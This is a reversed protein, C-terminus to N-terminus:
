IHFKKKIEIKLKPYGFLVGTLMVIASFTASTLSPWLTDYVKCWYLVIPIFGLICLMMIAPMNNKTKHAVALYIGEGIISFIFIFPLCYELSWYTTSKLVCQIVVLLLFIGVGQIIIKQSVSSRSFITNQVLLMAYLLIAGVICSWMLEPTTFLNATLCVLFIVLSGIFSIKTLTPKLRSAKEYTKPPFFVTVATESPTLKEHCLPCFETESKVEVNCYKCHM